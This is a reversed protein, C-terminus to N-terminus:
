MGGVASWIDLSILPINIKHQAFKWRWLLLVAQQLGRDFVLHPLHLSPLSCASWLYFPHFWILCCFLRLSYQYKQEYIPDGSQVTM